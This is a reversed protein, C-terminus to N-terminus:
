RRPILIYADDVNPARAGELDYKSAWIAQCLHFNEQVDENDVVRISEFISLERLLELKMDLDQKDKLADQIKQLVEQDSSTEDPWGKKNNTKSNVNKLLRKYSQLLTDMLKIQTKKPDPTELKRYNIYFDEQDTKVEWDSLCNQLQTREWEVHLPIRAMRFAAQGSSADSVTLTRLEPPWDTTSGINLELWNVDNSKRVFYQATHTHASIYLQIGYDQRWRALTDKSYQSLTHYPHHGMIVIVDGPEKQKLLGEVVSIQDDLFEGTLGSNRVSLFPILRPRYEYQNTDLLIATVSAKKGSSDSAQQPLTLNLRQVIFSRWPSEKDINWWVGSVFSSDGPAAEWDHRDVHDANTFGFNEHQTSQTSLVDLYAKVFLDKTMTKGQGDGTKCAKEWQSLAFHGNGFYNFDHNGPAMVWGKGSKSMIKKFQDFEVTCAINLADGLHIVQKNKGYSKIIWKLIDPAYFDLQVPRIAVPVFQNTFGSRLWVPDGYLHHLQNDAILIVPISLLDGDVEYAPIGWTSPLSAPHQCGATLLLTALCSSLLTLHFARFHYM